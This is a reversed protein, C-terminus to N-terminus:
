FSSFFRDALFRLTSDPVIEKLHKLIEQSLEPSDTSESLKEDIHMLENKAKEYLHHPIIKLLENFDGESILSETKKHQQPTQDCLFHCFCYYYLIYNRVLTASIAKGETEVRPIEIVNIGLPKLYKHMQENYQRTIHCNPEEGVFRQTINVTPAIFKGFTELDSAANITFSDPAEKNFYGPFTISSIIFKGSPIVTVNALDSTGDKVLEIRDTFKFFSKDEEVVFIILNDVRGSAYEILYRHGKTFPNCNMVISGTIGPKLSITKLEELYQLLEEDTKEYNKKQLDFWYEALQSNYCYDNLQQPQRFWVSGDVIRRYIYQLCGYLIDAQQSCLRYTWHWGDWFMKEPILRLDDGIDLLFINDFNMAAKKIVEFNNKDVRMVVVDKEELETTYLQYLAQDYSIGPIGRNYVGYKCSLIHDENIRAQLFSAMTHRDETGPSYALCNGLLYISNDHEEPVGTTTRYGNKITVWTNEMDNLVIGNRTKIATPLTAISKVYDSTCYDIDGWMNQIHEEDLVEWRDKCLNLASSNSNYIKESDYHILVLLARSQYIRSFAHFYTSSAVHPYFDRLFDQYNNFNPSSEPYLKQVSHFYLDSGGLQTKSLIDYDISTVPDPINSSPLLFISINENELGCNQIMFDAMGKAHESTSGVSIYTDVKNNQSKVANLGIINFLSHEFPKGIYPSKPSIDICIENIIDPRFAKIAEAILPIGNLNGLYAIKANSPLRTFKADLEFFQAAQQITHKVNKQANSQVDFKNPFLVEEQLKLLQQDQPYRELGIVLVRKAEVIRKSHILFKIISIYTTLNIYPLKAHALEFYTIAQEFQGTTLSLEVLKEYAASLEPAQSIINLLASIAKGLDKSCILEDIQSLQSQYDL